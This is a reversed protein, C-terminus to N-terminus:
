RAAAAAPATWAPVGDVAWAPGEVPLWAAPAGAARLAAALRYNELPHRPVDFTSNAPCAGRAGPAPPAWPEAAAYDVAGGGARCASPLPAAAACPAARWRGDAASIVACAGAGGGNDGGDGFPEGEAWTWVAAAARAPTLADPSPANVGCALAAPLSAEDLFPANSGGWEFECSLPGYVLECSSVRVLAGAMLAPPPPDGSGAPPALGCAPPAGLAALPPEAWGCLADGRAHVLPAMTAGYDSGSVLLARRGAAAMAGAPPWAGGVAALDDAGFIEDASFVELVAEPLKHAVGWVGLDPQDDFYLVVFEGENGPADLWTKIESLADVLTRQEAAPISSLSPACGLTETDWRLRRGLLKAVATLARVVANLAGVHLGGCHAIRLEGLVWHTDLELMRAGLALQDTLSLLQNNTQLQAHAFGPRVLAAYKMLACWQPDLNGYGDALSIASNHTGLFSAFCLPAARALRAQLRAAAALWPAPRLSGRACVESCAADDCWTARDCDAGAPVGRRAALPASLDRETPAGAPPFCLRGARSLAGLAAAEPATVNAAALAAAAPPRCSSAAATAGAVAGPRAARAAPFISTAGPWLAADAVALLAALAVVLAARARSCM